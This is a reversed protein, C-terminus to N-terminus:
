SMHHNGNRTLAFDVVKLDVKRICALSFFLVFLFLFWGGGGGCGGGYGVVVFLCFRCFGCM